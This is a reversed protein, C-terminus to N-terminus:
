FIVFQMHMCHLLCWCIKIMILLYNGKKGIKLLFYISVFHYSFYWCVIIQSLSISYSPKPSLINIWVSEKNGWFHSWHMYMCKIIIIFICKFVQLLGLQLTWKIFGVHKPETMMNSDFTVCNIMANWYWCQMRGHGLISM